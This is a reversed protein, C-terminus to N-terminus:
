ARRAEAVDAQKVIRGERLTVLEDCKAVTTLRHAVIIMTKDGHLADIAAMVDVETENDLASTAEDLVLVPPDLYLARAIGIRQRQGGSLRVGREGVITDLGKPLSDIFGTLQAAKIARAVAQDDIDHEPVGFAVNRRITDDVLYISQPVYGISNQWARLCTEIDQGDVSVVGEEPTLLGLVIDILTSKGAGSEGIVGVSKGRDIRLSLNKLSPRNAGPYTYSVNDLTLANAIPLPPVAASVAEVPATALEAHLSDIVPKSSRLTQWTLLARNASPLIRFAAVAFLGLRSLLATGTNGQLVLVTGLVTLGSVALLEYWLRPLQQAMALRGYVMASATNHRSFAAVFAEERGYLKVEKVGALGQHLHKARLTEHHRRREGWSSLRTRILRQFVWTSVGLAIAVGIAAVPEIMVLIVGIGAGLLIETAFQCLATVVTAFQSVESTINRILTASNRQLHFTWPQRVYLSFLRQSIDSQLSAVFSSQSWTLFVLFVVKIAYIVTLAVLGGIVMTSESPHGLWDSVRSIFPSPASGKDGSLLTLAPLVLGLGLMELFMGVTTLLGLWVVGGRQSSSLLQWVKYFSSM